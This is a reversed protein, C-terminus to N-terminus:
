RPIEKKELDFSFQDMAEPLPLLTAPTEPAERYPERVAAIVEDVPFPEDSTVLYFCEFGPADDLEYSEGLTVTAGAELPVAESGEVPLHRTVVGRGDISVIVGYRRGAAQYALQVQDGSRAATGPPLREIEAAGKRYVLLYPTVGKVRTVDASDPRPGLRPAVVVMAVMAAVAFLVAVAPEPRRWSSGPPREAGRARAARVASALAEPPHQALIGDNSRELEALRRRLDDHDRALADRVAEAESGPLEGLLYRELQWDHVNSEPRGTEGTM